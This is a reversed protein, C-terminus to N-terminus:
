SPSTSSCANGASSKRTLKVIWYSLGCMPVCCAVNVIVGSTNSRSIEGALVQVLKAQDCPHQYHLGRLTRGVSFSINDQVFAFDIGADQYRQKQYTELFFGRKDGFVKPEVILVGELETALVNM